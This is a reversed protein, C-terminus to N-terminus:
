AMEKQNNFFEVAAVDLLAEARTAAVYLLRQDEDGSKAEEPFDADLRVSHWERGKAKHATSLILDAQKENSCQSLGDVIVDAGFEEVLDVLLKLESGSPDHAVYELVEGWTEFCALDPHWASRGGKLQEAAKAFSVVDAAGGVIAVKRGDGLERLATAVASANTRSLVVGPDAIRGVVGPPGAGIVQVPAGLDALVMNAHEAIEQGFRFSRTLWTRPADPAASELANVAGNWGYIQQYTDGVFVLQADAQKNVISLMCPNADQSEDFLIVDAAIRPGDVEWQKLYHSHTYPLTGNTSMVDAWYRSIAPAIFNAMAQHNPGRVNLLKPGDGFDVIQPDDLGPQTPVHQAGPKPDATQCFVEITRKVIGALFGAALRKKSGAVEIDFPRLDLKRSIEHSKMRAGGLRHSYNKGVARFALSHATSCVVNSPFSRAADTAIAKNFAIFQFRREPMHEAAMRLTSTKGTGALAEIVCSEGTMAIDIAAQQEDTPPYSM